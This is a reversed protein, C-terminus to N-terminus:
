LLPMVNLLLRLTRPACPQQRGSELLCCGQAGLRVKIDNTEVPREAPAISFTQAEGEIFLDGRQPQGQNQVSMQLILRCEIRCLMRCSAVARIGACSEAGVVARPVAYTDARVEARIGARREADAFQVINQM